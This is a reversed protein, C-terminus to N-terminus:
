LISCVREIIDNSIPGPKKQIVFPMSVGYINENISGLYKNISIKNLMLDCYHISDGFKEVNNIVNLHQNDYVLELKRKHPSFVQDIYATPFENFIKPVQKLNLYHRVASMTPYRIKTIEKSHNFKDEKNFGLSFKHEFESLSFVDGSSLLKSRYLLEVLQNFNIGIILKDVTILEFTNNELNLITLEIIKKNIKFSYLFLNKYLNFINEANFVQGKSDLIKEINENNSLYGEGLDSIPKTSILNEHKIKTFESPLNETNVWGGWVSSNGGSVMRDHLKIKSSLKFSLNGFSKARSSFLKNYELNKNRQM